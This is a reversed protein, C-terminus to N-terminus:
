TVDGDAEREIERGREKKRRARGRKAPARAYCRGAKNAGASSELRERSARSCVLAAGPESLLVCFFFLRGDVVERVQRVENVGDGPWNLPIWFFPLLLNEKQPTLLALAACM